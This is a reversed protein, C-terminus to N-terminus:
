FGSVNPLLANPTSSTHIFLATLMIGSYFSVLYHDFLALTFLPALTLPLFYNKAHPLAFFYGAFVVAFFIIGAIGYEALLLVFVNHPPALQWWATDPHQVFFTNVFNGPGVGFWPHQKWLAIGDHISTIRESIARKELREDGTFRTLTKPWLAILMIAMVIMSIRMMHRTNKYFGGFLIIGVLWALWASRSFTFALVLTFLVSLLGAVPQRFLGSPVVEGQTASRAIVILLALVLYGGFINPHPFPGYARLFRTGGYEIVSTGGQAPIHEALGLWKQAPAYQFVYQGIGLVAAITMSILFGQIAARRPMWGSTLMILVISAELIWATNQLGSFMDAAFYSRIVAYAILALLAVVWWQRRTFPQLRPRNRIIHTVGSAVALLILAGLVLESAYLSLRGYEVDPDLPSYRYILRTQWPLLLFFFFTLWFRVSELMNNRANRGHPAIGSEAIMRM